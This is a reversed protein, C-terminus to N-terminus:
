LEEMFRRIERLAQKLWTFVVTRDQAGNAYLKLVYGNDVKNLMVEKGRLRDIQETAEEGAKGVPPASLHRTM